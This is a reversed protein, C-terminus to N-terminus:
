KFLEEYKEPLHKKMTERAEAESLPTIKSSGAWSDMGIYVGYKTKAGGHGAVFYSGDKKQYLAETYYFLDNCPDEYNDWEGLLIARDTNYTKGKIVKKM